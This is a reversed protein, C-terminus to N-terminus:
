MYESLVKQYVGFRCQSNLYKIYSSVRDLLVNYKIGSEFLENEISIDYSILQLIGADDVFEVIVKPSFVFGKEWLITTSIKISKGFNNVLELEVKNKDVFELSGLVFLNDVYEIPKFSSVDSFDVEKNGSKSFSYLRKHGDLDEYMIAQENVVMVDSDDKIKTSFSDLLYIGERDCNYLNNNREYSFKKICLCTENNSRILAVAFFDNVNSEFSIFSKKLLDGELFYRSEVTPIKVKSGHYHISVYLKSANNNLSFYFSGFETSLWDSSVGDNLCLINSM